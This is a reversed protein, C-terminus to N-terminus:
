AQRWLKASNEGEETEIRRDIEALLELESLFPITEQNTILVGQWTHNERSTIKIKFNKEM